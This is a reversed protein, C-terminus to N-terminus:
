TLLWCLFGPIGGSGGLLTLCKWDDGVLKGASRGQLPCRFGGEAHRARRAAQSGRVHTAPPAAGQQLWSEVLLEQTNEDPLEENMEVNNGM